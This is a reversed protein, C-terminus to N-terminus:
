FEYNGSVAISPNFGVTSYAERFLEGDVFIMVHLQGSDNNSVAGLYLFSTKHITFKRFWPLATVVDERGDESTSTTITCSALDGIVRFEVQHSTPVPDPTPAVPNSTSNDEAKQNYIKTCGLTLLLPILLLVRRTM